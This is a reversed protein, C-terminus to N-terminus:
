ATCARLLRSDLRIQVPLQTAATYSPTEGPSTSGGMGPHAHSFHQVSFGPTEAKLSSLSFGWKAEL